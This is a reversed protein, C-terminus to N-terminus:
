FALFCLLQRGVRRVPELLLPLRVATKPLAREPRGCGAGSAVLLSPLGARCFEKLLLSNKSMKAARGVWAPYKKLM